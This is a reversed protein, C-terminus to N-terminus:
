VERPAERGSPEALRPLLRRAAEAEASKRSGGEADESDPGVQVRVRFRPAHGPGEQSLLSYVPASRGLRAAREQLATKPDAEAWLGEHATRVSSEFRTEVLKAVAQFGAEGVDLYVAGLLAELADAKPKLGMRSKTRGLAEHLELGLDESWAALAETRVLLTRLKSMAGEEWEPRLRHILAAVAANLLADGLFELRQNDRGGVSAHTLAEDLLASDHFTHGLAVQLRTRSASGAM